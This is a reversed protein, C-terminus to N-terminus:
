GAVAMEASLPGAEPADGSDQTNEGGLQAPMDANLKYSFFRM